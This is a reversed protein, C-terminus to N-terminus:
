KETNKVYLYSKETYCRYLRYDNRYIQTEILTIASYVDKM